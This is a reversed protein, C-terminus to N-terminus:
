TVGALQLYRRPTNCPTVSLATSGLVAVATDQLAPQCGSVSAGAIPVAPVLYDNCISGCLTCGSCCCSTKYDTGVGIGMCIGGGIMYVNLDQIM